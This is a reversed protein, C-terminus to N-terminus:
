SSAEDESPVPNPWHRIEAESAVRVDEIHGEFRLTMGALPHNGDVTVTNEDFATIIMVQEGQEARGTISEGVEIKQDTLFASRPVTQILSPQHEGFGESPTVTVDFSDGSNKVELAAELAPLVGVAGHMYVLPEGEPSQDLSEGKDNTLRYHISFICDRAVKM